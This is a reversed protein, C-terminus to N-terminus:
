AGMDREAAAGRPVVTFLLSGAGEMGSLWAFTGTASIAGGEPANGPGARGGSSRTAGDNGAEGDALEKARCLSKEGGGSIGSSKGRGDSTCCAPVISIAACRSLFACFHGHPLSAYRWRLLRTLTM